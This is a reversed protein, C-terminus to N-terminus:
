IRIPLRIEGSRSNERLPDRRPCTMHDATAAFRKTESQKGNGSGRGDPQELPEDYEAGGRHARCAATAVVKGFAGAQGYIRIQLDLPPEARPITMERNRELQARRLGEEALARCAAGDHARGM